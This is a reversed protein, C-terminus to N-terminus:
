ERTERQQAATTVWRRARGGKLGFITAAGYGVTTDPMNRDFLASIRLTRGETRVKLQKFYM